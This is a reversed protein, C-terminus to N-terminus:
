LWLTARGGQQVQIRLYHSAHKWGADQRQLISHPSIHERIQGRPMPMGVPGIMTGSLPKSAWAQEDGLNIINEVRLCGETAIPLIHSSLRYVWEELPLPGVSSTVCM